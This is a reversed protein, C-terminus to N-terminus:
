LFNGFIGSPFIALILDCTTDSDTSHWIASENSRESIRM